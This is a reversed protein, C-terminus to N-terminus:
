HFKCAMITKILQNEILYQLAWFLKGEFFKSHLSIVSLM